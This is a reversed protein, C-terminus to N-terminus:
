KNEKVQHIAVVHLQKLHDPYVYYAKGTHTLVVDGVKAVTFPLLRMFLNKFM